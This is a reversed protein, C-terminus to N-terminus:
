DKRNLTPPNNKGGPAPPCSCFRMKLVLAAAIMVASIIIWATRINAALPIVLALVLLLAFLYIFYDLRCCLRKSEGDGQVEPAPVDGQLSPPINDPNGGLGRVKDATHRIYKGFIPKWQDNAPIALDIYRMVALRSAEEPLLLNAKTVPILWDCSGIIKETIGDVQRVTIRFAQKYRVTDPLEISFLAAITAYRSSPLPVWTVRDAGVELRITHEDVVSLNDPGPRRAHLEAIEAALIGPMFITATSGAPLNKWEIMLQDPMRRRISPIANTFQGVPQSVEFDKILKLPVGFGMAPSAKIEFTHQVTHTDPGGPNDSGVIALNRQSLSDNSAPSDGNQLWDTGFDVEAVLCCHASRLLEPISKLGSPFPGTPNSTDLPFRYQPQNIDLWCGFFAINEGGGSAAGITFQNLPDLQMQLGEAATNARASAYFPITVVQGGRIGLAPIRQGATNTITRYTETAHFDVGTSLARFLRFFVRVDTAPLSQGRYHVKAIAFNYVRNSTGPKMESLYVKSNEQTTPLMSTFQTNGNVPNTRFSNVVNNIYTLANAPSNGVDEGLFVQNQEVAFVRVDVSLWHPDGDLMFPRPQHTLRVQGECVYGNKTATIRVQQDEVPMAGSTFIDRNTFRLTYRFAIRQPIGMGAEFLVADADHTMGPAASSDAVRNFAISPAVTNVEADSPTVSTLGLEEPTFGDMIVYFSQEFDTNGSANVEDFAFHSRDTVLQCQRRSLQVIRARASPRQQDDIVWLMYYGPPAVTADNIVGARLTYNKTVSDYSTVVMDLPVYRQESDTHHTMAGLRTLAVKFPMTDSTGTITVFGGYPLKDGPVHPSSVATITPRTGKFFYPPQYFEYTRQNLAGGAESRSPDVGGMTIVSGDTLLLSASHYTRREHMEAVETWTDLVPDYLEAVNSAVQGSDWKYTNHGGHVLVKGDALLVINPNMRPRNMTLNRWTMPSAQTDLIAASNLNTGSRHGASNSNHNSWWGGGALLLKGDQAPPLLVSMGEERNNVAPAISNDTWSGTNGAKVFTFTNIPANQEQEYRWTTGTLIIKSGKVLHLGPYSALSKDAGSLVQPTYTTGSVPLRFHEVSAALHSGSDDRGSFALVSGDPLTILTPYWRGISMEGVRTWTHTDPNYVCIDRVGQGHNPDAQSGGVSMVMGNELNTQHCCFIDVHHGGSSMPFDVRLAASMTPDAVPDWEFSEAPLHRNEVHGSWVLIKGTRMHIAHLIFLGTGDSANTTNQVGMWQGHTASM